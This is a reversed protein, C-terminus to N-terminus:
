SDGLPQHACTHQPGLIGCTVKPIQVPGDPVYAWGYFLPFRHINIYYTQGLM